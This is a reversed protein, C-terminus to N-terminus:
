SNGCIDEFVTRHLQYEGTVPDRDKYDVWIAANDSPLVAFARKIGKQLRTDAATNVAVMVAKRRGDRIRLAPPLRGTSNTALRDCVMADRLVDRDVGKLASFYDFLRETYADLPAGVPTSGTLALGASMFLEFPAVSTQKLVLDLTRSFRGSNYLRDLADEADRLRRLEAETLWPTETVEYPPEPSYRCPFAGPQERMPAGYLLKLFGLQLMHPKLMYAANFSKEFSKMDEHPLGAILDIHVHINGFSILRGVAAKLRGVDTRRNIAELTKENLSQLGIEFQLAGKPATELLRLTEEDLLDGAIEFHFCVDNPIASGYNEIIFSYIDRARMRDANFTRDVLKVTRTGSNALLLIDRKARDIDFYRVRGERGSLCFACAFPCGRSTELYAIRGNLAALYAETYPNPPEDSACYPPSVAIEGNLRFCIGPIGAPEKGGAIVDLLLALPREGEGSLVYDVLPESRLVEESNYSVEPGGLVVIVEPLANSLHPLLRKVFAINWIYCSLGIIDPKTAIIRAAIADISENITGEVVEAAAVGCHAKVGALLYWAALSSHVYKSNLAVIAAHISKEKM